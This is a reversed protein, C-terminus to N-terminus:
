LIRGFAYWRELCNWCYGCHIPIGDDNVMKVVECSNTHAYIIDLANLDNYAQAVAMKDSNGFPRYGRNIGHLEDREVDRSEISDLVRTNDLGLDSNLFYQYMDDPNPNTTMGSYFKMDGFESIAETVLAEQGATYERWGHPIRNTFHKLPRKGTLEAVKEIIRKASAVYYCKLDTDLTIVVINVSDNNKYKECFAYYIISSDAGGSLKIGVTTGDAHDLIM